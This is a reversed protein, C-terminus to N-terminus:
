SSHKDYEDDIKCRFMKCRVNTCMFSSKIIYM